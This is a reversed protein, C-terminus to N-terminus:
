HSHSGVDIQVVSACGTFVCARAGAFAYTSLGSFLLYRDGSTLNAKIILSYNQLTRSSHGTMCTSSCHAVVAVQNNPSSGGLVWSGTTNDYVNAFLSVNWAVHCYFSCSKRTVDWSIQWKFTIQNAGTKTVQFTSGNFGADTTISASGPHFRVAM